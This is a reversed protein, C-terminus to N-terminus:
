KEQKKLFSVNLFLLAPIFLALQLIFPLLSHFDLGKTFSGVSVKLFYTTPYFTGIWYALGTLTAVPQLLGSFQTAPLMTLMATGFLAAAQSQTFSSILLGLSTTVIVYAIVGVCLGLFSGKFPVKFILTAILFMLVFSILSFFIYPFQKGLIFELRSVPTVYLNAISGMEKERVVSLAALIAPIFILLLGLVGPVIANVSEFAQNYIYRSEVTVPSKPALKYRNIFRKDVQQMYGGITEALFPVSGDITASIEPRDGRKLDRGFKPPIEIALTTKGHLMQKTLDAQNILPPQESFYPSGMFEEAYARSEPTNGWDLISYRVNNVDLTIGYGFVLMLLSTGVTAISLRIPDRRLELFERLLYAFVRRFSFRSVETPKVKQEAQATTSVEQKRPQEGVAEELYSVFAEDLTKAKKKKRLEEPAGMAIVKGAHMLSVRDCRAAENMFHTTVFITVNHNYSLDILLSWFNDRAVPDVGSTPEDLILIEPEHIVAVALSLRQRVGLPLGGSNSDKYSILDFTEYLWKLRSQAKEGSLGFLEVHLQLNQNVTLEGYLSFAQSMYGIRWRNQMDGPVLKKGFLFSEGESVPLLGTMMKMTTSKGCGNSGLFGFIEGTPIKFNVHDVATFTGFRRTLNIAEIAIEKGSLDREPIEIHAHEKRKEEPLFAIFAAELDTVKCQKKLDRSTGHAIIKGDDMMIVEDFQDAEEMYSTAVLVTLNKREKKIGEILIWFQKRSLPDVGTTPEDLILLEPDHILSCCLGLKQKMGGSLKGAPRDIFPSMGTAALLQAIRRDREAKDHGYLRGFFELNERVSLEAYLNKGLGQAMYAVRQQLVRQVSKLRADGDFIILEGDQIKKAGAILGLLTSKGVGDPGIFAISKGTTLSLNIDQLALTKGYYHSINKANILVSM